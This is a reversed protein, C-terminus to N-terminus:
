GSGPRPLQHNPLKPAVERRAQDRLLKAQERKELFLEYGVAVFIFYFVLLQARQRYATGVNGQFVSYALTLMTTFILISSVQRLRHKVAFWFGAVLAPFSLWWVMMEPFTISQRLSALQWPFPAFLLYLIGVPATALAGQLTSVDAEQNFGSAASEAADERSRQVEELRAFKELQADAVRTVGLYALGLCIVGIMLFQRLFNEASIERTGVALAAGVAVAMMYFVYFRFALLGFLAGLLVLLYVASLKEGLRLTALISLSLFLVISADKLGQSSWLALSPFFAVLLAAMRGVRKNQFIHRACLYIVPATAAGIVANVFQVALMNRGILGYLGAVLYVMGWGSAGGEYRSVFRELVIAATKDGYWIKLQTDGFFDYTYADGGFFEQLNFVFILSGVLVRLMLAAVFVRLLFDRDDEAAAAILAGAGTALAACVLLAKGCSLLDVAGYKPIAAPDTLAPVLTLVAVSLVMVLFAIIGNM